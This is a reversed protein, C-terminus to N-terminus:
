PDQQKFDVSTTQHQQPPREKHRLFEFVSFHFNKSVESFNLFSCNKSLKQFDVKLEVYTEMVVVETINGIPLMYSPPSRVSIETSIEAKRARPSEIKM